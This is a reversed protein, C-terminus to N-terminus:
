YPLHRKALELPWLGVAIGFHRYPPDEEVGWWGGDGKRDWGDGQKTPRINIGVQFIVEFAKLNM